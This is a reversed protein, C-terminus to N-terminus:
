SAVGAMVADARLTAEIARMEEHLRRRRSCDGSFTSYPDPTCYERNKKALMAVLEEREKRTLRLRRPNIQLAQDPLITAM